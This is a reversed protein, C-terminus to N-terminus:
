SKRFAILAIRVALKGKNWPVWEGKAQDFPM